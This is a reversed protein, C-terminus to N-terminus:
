PHAANRGEHQKQEGNICSAIGGEPLGILLRASLYASTM